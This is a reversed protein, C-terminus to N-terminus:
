PTPLPPPMQRRQLWVLIAAGFGLTWAVYEVVLGVASFPFTFFGGGVIAASRALLTILAITLVGLIVTAYAGRGTWGFRHNLVRGVHYAVGTFGVVLMALVLVIGFPVLLLLPIGIISVVLVIITIVLLPFFLLQAFFGVLGARVPDSATRDAIREITTRGIAVIVLALLGLLAIRLVTGALSGVRGVFPGVMMGPMAAWIPWRWSWRDNGINVNEIRGDVRAGADRNLIGGVVNVDNRVVSEPRLYLNGMVVTVDGDVEGDVYANGFVVVLDGEVREDRAVTANGFIRIIDGNRRVRPTIDPVPPPPAASPADPSAPPEPPTIGTDPTPATAALSRQDAASLYSVRLILDADPGVRDRLERGTVDDGDVTVAGNSIQIIRVRANRDRPVLGIGNQLAVIDFRERLRDRLAPIDEQRAQLAVALTAGLLMVVALRTRM